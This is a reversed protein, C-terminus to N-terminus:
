EGYTRYTLRNVNGWQELLGHIESKDPVLLVTTDTGHIPWDIAYSQVYTQQEEDWQTDWTLGIWVNETLRLEKLKPCGTFSFRGLLLEGEPLHVTELEECYAFARDEIIVVGDPVYVEVVNSGEFASIDITTVPKGDIEDPIQVVKDQGTYKKIVVGPAALTHGNEVRSLETTTWIFNESEYHGNLDIDAATILGVAYSGVFHVGLSYSKNELMDIRVYPGSYAGGEAIYWVRYDERRLDGPISTAKVYHTTEGDWTLDFEEQSYNSIVLEKGALDYWIGDLATVETVKGTETDCGSIFILLIACIISARMRKM